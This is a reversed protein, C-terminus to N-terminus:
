RVASRGPPVAVVGRVTFLSVVLQSGYCVCLPRLNNSLRSFAL